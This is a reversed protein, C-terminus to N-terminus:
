QKAGKLLNVRGYDSPAVEYGGRHTTKLSVWPVGEVTGVEHERLIVAIRNRAHNKDSEAAKVKESADIYEAVALALEAGGEVADATKTAYQEDLVKRTAASEDVPPHEDGVIYHDWFDLAQRFANQQWAEDALVRRHRLDQGGVLAVVHTTPLGSVALQWQAQVWYYDPVGDDWEDLKFHGVNKIEVWESADATLRDPSSLAIPCELSRYITIPDPQMSAIGTDKSWQEAISQELAKGWKMPDTEKLPSMIHKKRAWVTYPSDWPSIGLIGAIESGGIGFDRLGLWEQESLGSGAVEAKPLAPATM